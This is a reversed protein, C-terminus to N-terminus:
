KNSDSRRRGIISSVARARSNEGNRAYSFVGTKRSLFLFEGRLSPPKSTQKSKGAIRYKAAMRALRNEISM